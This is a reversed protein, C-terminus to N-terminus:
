SLLRRKKGFLKDIMASCEIHWVRGDEALIQKLASIKIGRECAKWLAFDKSSKKEAVSSIRSQNDDGNISMNSVAGYLKDKSTDFYIDGNKIQYAFGKEILSNIMDTIAGISETAKPELDARKVNLAEMENLYREIYFDTLEKLTLSSDKLKNIIKDDIDTFNKALTVDFGLVRLTRSLLDFSVASRAHGLHADDYVTPGCVYIKVTKPEIPEFQVKERKSSDFIFMKQM